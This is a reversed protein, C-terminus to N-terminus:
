ASSPMRSQRKDRPSPSTYLLCGTGPLYELERVEFQRTSDYFTRTESDEYLMLRGDVMAVNPSAELKHRLSEQREALSQGRLETIEERTDTAEEWTKWMHPAVRGTAHIVLITPVTVALTQLSRQYYTTGLRTHRAQLRGADWRTVVRKRGDRGVIFQNLGRLDWRPPQNWDIEQVTQPAFRTGRQRHYETGAPTAVGKQELVLKGGAAKVIHLNNKNKALIPM